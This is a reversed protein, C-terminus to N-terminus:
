TDSKRKVRPKKADDAFKLPAAAKRKPTAGMGVAAASSVGKLVDGSQPSIRRTEDLVVASATAERSALLIAGKGADGPRGMTEPSLTKGGGLSLSSTPRAALRSASEDVAAFLEARDRILALRRKEDREAAVENYILAALMGMKAAPSDDPPTGKAKRVAALELERSVTGMLYSDVASITPLDSVRGDFHVAGVGSCLWDLSVSQSIAIPIISEFPVSGVRKRNAYNSTSM